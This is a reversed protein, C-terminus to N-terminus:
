VAHSAQVLKPQLESAIGRAWEEINSELILRAGISEYMTQARDLLQRHSDGITVVTIPLQPDLARVDSIAWACADVETQLDNLSPLEFSFAAVAHLLRGNRLGLDFKHQEFRGSVHPAAQVVEPTLRARLAKTVRQRAVRRDRYAPKRRTRPNAVYRDFLEDCLQNADDHLVARLESVRVTGGWETHAISLADTVTRGPQSTPHALGRAVDQLFDINNDFGLSKLRADAKPLVRFVASQPEPAVVIVGVNLTEQRLADPMFRLVAFQYATM